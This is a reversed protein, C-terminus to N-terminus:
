RPDDAGAAHGEDSGRGGSEDGSPRRGESLAHLLRSLQDIDDVSWESLARAMMSEHPRRAAALREAGETTASLLASRGDNPDPAREVLGLDELERVTRSILGKDSQLADALERSSVPGISAITTFVKYSGPMLGPSLRNANDAVVRRFRSILRSFEADLRATARLRDEDLIDEPSPLPDSATGDASM